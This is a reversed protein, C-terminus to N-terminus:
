QPKQPSKESQAVNGVNGVSNEEEVLFLFVLLAGLRTSACSARDWQMILVTLKVIGLVWDRTPGIYSVGYPHPPVRGRGSFAGSLSQLARVPGNSEDALLRAYLSVRGAHSM